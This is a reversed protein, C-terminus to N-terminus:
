SGQSKGYQAKAIELTESEMGKTFILLTAEDLHLLPLFIHNRVPPERSGNCELCLHICIKTPWLGERPKGQLETPLPDAQLVPSGPKIGTNPLDGPSPFPLGRWYEQRSFRM